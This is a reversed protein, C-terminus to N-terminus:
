FSKLEEKLEGLYERLTVARGERKKGTAGAGAGAALAAVAAPSAQGEVPPGEKGTSPQGEHSPAGAPASDVPGEGEEEQGGEVQPLCLVLVVAHMPTLNAALWWLAVVGHLVAM